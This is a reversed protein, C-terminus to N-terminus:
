DITCLTQHMTFSSFFGINVSRFRLCHHCGAVTIFLTAEVRPNILRNCLLWPVHCCWPGWSLCLRGQTCLSSAHCFIEELSGYTACVLCGDCGLLPYLYHLLPSLTIPLFFNFLSCPINYYLHPPSSQQNGQPDFLLCSPHHPHPPRLSIHATHCTLTNHTYFFSTNRHSNERNRYTVSCVSM